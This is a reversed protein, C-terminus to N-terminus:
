SCVGGKEPSYVWLIICVRVSFFLFFYEKEERAICVCLINQIDVSNFEHQLQTYVSGKKSCLRLPSEGFSLGTRTCWLEFRNRLLLTWCACWYMESKNRRGNWLTSSAKAAKSSEIRPRNSFDLSITLVRYVKQQQQQILNDLWQQCYMFVLPKINFLLPNVRSVSHM